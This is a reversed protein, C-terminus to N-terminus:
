HIQHSYSMYRALTQIINYFLRKPSITFKNFLSLDSRFHLLYTRKRVALVDALHTHKELIAKM